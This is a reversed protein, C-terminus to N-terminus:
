WIGDLSKQCVKELFNLLNVRGIRDKGNIISGFMTGQHQRTVDGRIFMANGLRKTTELIGRAMSGLIVFGQMHKDMDPTSLGKTIQLEVCTEKMPKFVVLEEEAGMTKCGGVINTRSTENAPHRGGQMTMICNICDELAFEVELGRIQFNTKDGVTDGNTGARLFLVHHNNFNLNVPLMKVGGTLDENLNKFSLFIEKWPVNIKDGGGGVAGHVKVNVILVESNMMGMHCVKATKGDGVNTIDLCLNCDIIWIARVGTDHRKLLGQQTFGASVHVIGKEVGNFM